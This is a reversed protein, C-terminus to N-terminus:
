LMSDAQSGLWSGGRGRVGGRARSMTGRVVNSSSEEDSDSAAARSIGSYSAMSNSPLVSCMM